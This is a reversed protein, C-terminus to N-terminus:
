AFPYVSIVMIGLLLSSLVIWRWELCHLIDQSIEDFENTVTKDERAMWLTSTAPWGASKM